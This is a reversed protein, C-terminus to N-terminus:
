WWYVRGNKYTFIREAYYSSEMKSSKILYLADSPINEFILSEQNGKVTKDQIWDNDWYYLTFDQNNNVQIGSKPVISISHIDTEKGLDFLIDWDKSNKSNFSGLFGTGSLGDTIRYLEKISDNSINATVKVDTVPKLKGDQKKYFTIENLAIYKQPLTLHIQRYKKSTQLEIYNYSTDISDTLTYLTDRREESGGNNCGTWHAGALMPIFHTSIPTTTNVIITEKEHPNHKLQKCNGEEDLIFVPAAPMVTGDQFFAPLYAIDRGMGKFTVKKRNIKGWQVPNWTMNQANYVCLYCYGTNEPIKETIDITVDTTQFYQSSVDKMWLNKFLNPINNRRENKDAIPGNLHYEFSKRFVKPLRFKGANLDFSHNNYLIDYKWRDKDCFPEFPYTKGDVILTNWSHGETRNGWMPVFDITVPMGLASMMHANFQTQIDCTARKIREYSAINCIPMSAAYGVSNMISDYTFHLSDTIVRFDKGAHSFIGHHRNYFIERNNDPCFKDSFRYPLIHKCFVEFPADKSYANEKWAKFALDIEKILWDAKITQIDPKDPYKNLNIKVSEENWLNKIESRWGDPRKWDYKESIAIHKDYVPQLIPIIAPSYGAHGPMNMILFRAAALKLSDDTYHSLVKELEERNEGAFTLAQELCQKDPSACAILFTALLLTIRSIFIKRM